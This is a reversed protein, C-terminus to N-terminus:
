SFSTLSAAYHHWNHIHVRLNEDESWVVYGQNVQEILEQCVDCTWATLPKAMRYVEERDPSHSGLAGRSDIRTVKRGGVGPPRATLVRPGCPRRAGDPAADNLDCRRRLTVPEVAGGPHPGVVLWVGPM